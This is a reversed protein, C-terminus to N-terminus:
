AFDRIFYKVLSRELSAKRKTRSGALENISM